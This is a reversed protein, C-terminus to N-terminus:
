LFYTKLSFEPIRKVKKNVKKYKVSFRQGM